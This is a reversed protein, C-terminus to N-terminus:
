QRCLLWVAGRGERPVRDAHVMEGREMEAVHRGAARGQAPQAVICGAELVHGAADDRMQVAGEGYEAGILGGAYENPQEFGDAVVPECGFQLAQGGLPYAARRGIGGDGAQGQQAARSHDGAPIIGGLGTSKPHDRETRRLFDIPQGHEALEKMLDTPGKGRAGLRGGVEQDIPLFVGEIHEMNELGGAAGIHRRLLLKDSREADTGHQSETGDQGVVFQEGDDEEASIRNRLADGLQEFGEGEGYLNRQSGMDISRRGGLVAGPEDTRPAWGM